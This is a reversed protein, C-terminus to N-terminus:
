HQIIIKRIVKRAAERYELLYVGSNLASVDLTYCGGIGEYPVDALRGDLSYVFLEAPHVAPVSLNMTQSAPQPWLLFGDVADEERLGYYDHLQGVEADALVRDYIRIEDLEGEWYNSGFGGMVMPWNMDQILGPHYVSDVLGGNIYLRIDNNDYTGVVHTWKNLESYGRAMKQSITTIMIGVTDFETFVAFDSCAMAFNFVGPETIRIFFSVTLHTTVFKDQTVSVKSAIGDFYYAHNVQGNHDNVNFVGFATGNYNNGSYDAANGNFPWFAVLGQELYPQANMMFPLNVLVFLLIGRKM